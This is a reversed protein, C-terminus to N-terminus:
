FVEELKLYKSWDGSLVLKNCPYEYLYALYTDDSSEDKVKITSYGAGLEMRNISNFCEKSCKMIDIIVRDDPNQSVKLGPYSGLDYINYGLISSTKIYEYDDGYMRKFSNYNYEGKRLSGYVAIYIPKDEIM